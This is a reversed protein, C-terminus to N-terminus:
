QPADVCSCFSHYFVPQQSMGQKSALEHKVLKRMHGLAMQKPITSGVTLQTKRYGDTIVVTEWLNAWLGINDPFNRM